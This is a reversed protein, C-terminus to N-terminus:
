ESCSALYKLERQVLSNILDLEGKEFPSKRLDIHKKIKLDLARLKKLSIQSKDPSTTATSDIAQRCPSITSAESNLPLTITADDQSNVQTGRLPWHLQLDDRLTGVIFFVGVTFALVIAISVLIANRWHAFLHIRVVASMNELRSMPSPSSIAGRRSKKKSSPMDSNPHSRLRAAGAHGYDDRTSLAIPFNPDSGAGVPTFIQPETTKTIASSAHQESAYYATELEDFSITELRNLDRIAKTVNPEFSAYIIRNRILGWRHGFFQIMRSLFPSANYDSASTDEALLLKRGKRNFTSSEQNLPPFTSYRELQHLFAPAMGWDIQEFTRIVREDSDILQIRLAEVIEDLLYIAREDLWMDVLWIGAGYHGGERSGRYEIAHRFQGIFSVTHGDIIEGGFVYLAGAPPLRVTFQDLIYLEGCDRIIKILDSGGVCFDKQSFGPTVGFFSIGLMGREDTM